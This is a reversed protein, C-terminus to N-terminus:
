RSELRCLPDGVVVNMWSLAPISRWYSEALTWGELYAPFLLDPHPTFALYPEYVHGSVGTAGERLLDGALSQPSGAFFGARNKWTTIQWGAPPEHFTRADTSVYETAIGGPLWRLGATRKTRHPDNSGWSAYGIVESVNEIVRATDDFVVRGPPLRNRAGRLWLEGDDMEGSKGDLIVVGRNRAQQSRDIMAKVDEVTYATLRTVLYMAFQPHRFRQNSMYFPNPVGGELPLRKGAHLLNYLLALESDVSSATGTRSVSGKVKLPVGSTTVLVLIREVLNRQKLWEAVPAEIEREYTERGIEEDPALRLHCIHAAPIGRRAAYYAAIARSAPDADNVILAVEDNRIASQAAAAGSALAPSLGLRLASSLAMLALLRRKQPLILTM